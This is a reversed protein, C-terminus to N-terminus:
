KRKEELKSKHEKNEKVGDESLGHHRNSNTNIKNSKNSKNSKTNLHAIPAFKM